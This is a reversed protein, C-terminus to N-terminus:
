SRMRATPRSASVTRRAASSRCAMASGARRARTSSIEWPSAQTASSTAAVPALSDVTDLPEPRQAIAADDRSSAVSLVDVVGEDVVVDPLEDVGHEVVDVV